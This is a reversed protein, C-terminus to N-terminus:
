NGSQSAVQPKKGRAGQKGEAELEQLLQAKNRALRRGLRALAPVERKLQALLAEATSFEIQATKVHLKARDLYSAGTDFHTLASAMMSSQLEDLHPLKV